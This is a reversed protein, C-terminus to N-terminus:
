FADAWRYADVVAQAGAEGGRSNGHEMGLIDNFGRAHIFKFVNQYHIEGTTPEKRGPNDGIQFYPIEAWYKEINPILNGESIQQHYIDFLIKMAPSDVAKCLAHAHESYRLYLGAHDRPNLPEMVMVLDHPEFVAAGRKLMEVANAQKVEAPLAADDTGLVITMWKANVRKAVEVSRRLDALFNERADEKGSCFTHEHFATGFNAVFVGMRMELREMARAIREQEEVPRGSMGNDEWARFGEAHAWELQAVPDKGAIAEFMGFHPAYALRFVEGARARPTPALVSPALPAVALAALGQKLLTRRHM